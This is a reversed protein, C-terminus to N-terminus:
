DPVQAAPAKPKEDLGLAWRLPHKLTIGDDEFMDRHLLYDAELRMMGLDFYMKLPNSM